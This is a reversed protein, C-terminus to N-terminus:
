WIEQGRVQSTGGFLINKRREGGESVGGWDTLWTLQYAGRKRGEGVKRITYPANRLNQKGALNEKAASRGRESNTKM